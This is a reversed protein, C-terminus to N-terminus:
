DDLKDGSGRTDFLRNWDISTQDGNKKSCKEHKMPLDGLVPLKELAGGVFQLMYSTRFLGGFRTVDETQIATKATLQKIQKQTVIRPEFLKQSVKWAGSYLDNLIMM